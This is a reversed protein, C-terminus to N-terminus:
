WHANNWGYKSRCNTCFMSDCGGKKETPARCSPCPRYSARFLRYTEEEERKLRAQHQLAEQVRREEEERRANEEALRRELELREQEARRRADAAEGERLLSRAFQAEADAIEQRRRQNDLELARYVERQRQAESRFSQPDALFADYEECTYDYHWATRHRFCFHRDDKPCYVLPQEAGSYHIQGTGCGLPCWIFHDVKSILGDIIRRQYHSFLNPDAFRQIEYFRLHENCEPCRLNDSTADQIQSNISLAVCDLCLSPNHECKDTLRTQQFALLPKIELCVSCEATQLEAM